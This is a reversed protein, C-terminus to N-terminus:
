KIIHYLLPIADILLILILNYKVLCLKTLIKKIFWYILLWQKISM